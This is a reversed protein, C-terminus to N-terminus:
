ASFRVPVIHTAIAVAAEATTNTGLIAVAVNAAGLPMAPIVILGLKLRVFSGDTIAEWFTWYYTNNPMLVRMIVAGTKGTQNTVGWEFTITEGRRKAVETIHSKPAPLANHAPGHGNTSM